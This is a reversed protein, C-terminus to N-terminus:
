EASELCAEHWTGPIGRLGYLVDGGHYFGVDEVFSEQGAFPLRGDELPHHWKWESQFARLQETSRVRVRAGIPFQEQYPPM